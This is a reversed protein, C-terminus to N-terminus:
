SVRQAADADEQEWFYVRVQLGEDGNEDEVAVQGGGLEGGDGGFDVGGGKNKDVVPQREVFPEEKYHM